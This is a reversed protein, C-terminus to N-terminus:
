NHSKLLSITDSALDHAFFTGWGRMHVDDEFSLELESLSGSEIHQRVETFRFIVHAFVQNQFSFTPLLQFPWLIQSRGLALNNRSVVLHTKSEDTRTLNTTIVVDHSIAVVFSGQCARAVGRRKVYDWFCIEQPDEFTILL